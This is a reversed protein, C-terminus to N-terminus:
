LCLFATVGFATTLRSVDYFTYFEELVRKWLDIRRRAFKRKSTRVDDWFEAARRKPTGLCIPVIASVCNLWQKEYDITLSTEM